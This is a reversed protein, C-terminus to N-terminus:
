FIASMKLEFNYFNYGNLPTSNTRQKENLVNRDIEENLCCCVIIFMVTAATKKKHSFLKERM